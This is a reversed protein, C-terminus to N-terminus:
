GQGKDEKCTYTYLFLGVLLFMALSLWPAFWATNTALNSAFDISIKLGAFTAIVLGILADGAVLGSVILIGKETKEKYLKEDKKYRQEVFWRIIGGIVIAASLEFPLYLGLAFPLLFCLFM